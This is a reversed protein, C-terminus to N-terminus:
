VYVYVQQMASSSAAYYVKNPHSCTEDRVFRTESIRGVSYEDELPLENCTEQIKFYTSWFTTNYFVSNYIEHGYLVCTLCLKYRM